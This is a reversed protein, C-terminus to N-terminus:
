RASNAVVNEKSSDAAPVPLTIHVVTGGGPSTHIATSGNIDKVREKIGTLGLGKHDRPSTMGVGNDRVSVDLHSRGRVVEVHIETAAAHKACNTLAEQVVRYVCTRQPDPLRELDGNVSLDVPVNYRRSFERAQWALAPELGLDDLMSPRLGMALDRVLRMMRDILAKNEGITVSFTPSGVAHAREARGIEMRLATLM